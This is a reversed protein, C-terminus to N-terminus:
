EGALFGSVINGTEPIVSMAVAEDDARQQLSAVGVTGGDRLVSGVSSSYITSGRVFAGRGATTTATSTGAQAVHLPQGPLVISTAMSKTHALNWLKFTALM